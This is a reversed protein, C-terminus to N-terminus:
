AAEEMAEDLQGAPIAYRSGEIWVDGPTRLEVFYFLPSGPLPWPHKDRLVVFETGPPLPTDNPLIAGDDDDLETAVVARRLRYHTGELLRM